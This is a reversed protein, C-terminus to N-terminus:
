SAVREIIAIDDDSLGYLSYVCRNLESTAAESNRELVKRTHGDRESLLKSKLYILRTAIDEIKKILKRDDYDALIVPLRAVNEKKVEAFAEGVEPNLTQYYWNMMSSNIIGLALLASTENDIPVLVHMNNMCLFQEEDLAAVLSDGTQRVLIKVPADFNAAPRPEALWVGYKIYRKRQPSVLFREIDAGRLYQRYTADLKKDSNNAPM